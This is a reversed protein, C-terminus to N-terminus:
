YRINRWNEAQTFIQLHKLNTTAVVIYRGPFERMLLRWQASIIMDVDINKDESTPQSQYRAEAWFEAAEQIINTTVPLFDIVKRLANLKSIGSSERGMKRALILGRRVEYNCIESTTVYAGRALLQELWSQCDYVEQSFNPNCLTGLVGTDLLVIM